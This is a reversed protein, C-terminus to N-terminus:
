LGSCFIDELLAVIGLGSLDRIDAVLRSKFFAIFFIDSLQHLIKYKIM